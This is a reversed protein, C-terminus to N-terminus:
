ARTHGHEDEWHNTLRKVLEVVDKASLVVVPELFKTEDNVYLDRETIPLDFGALAHFSALSDAMKEIVEGLDTQGVSMAYHYYQVIRDTFPAGEKEEVHELLEVVNMGDLSADAKARAEKSFKSEGM